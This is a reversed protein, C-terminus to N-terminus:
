VVQVVCSQECDVKHNNVGITVQQAPERLADRYFNSSRITASVLQVQDNRTPVKSFFVCLAIAKNPELVQVTAEKNVVYRRNASSSDTITYEAQLNLSTAAGRGVNKVIAFVYEKEQQEDGQEAVARAYDDNEIPTIDEQLKFSPDKTNITQYLLSETYSFRLARETLAVSDVAAQAMSRNQLLIEYTFLAYITTVAGITAAIYLSVRNPDVSTQHIWLYGGALLVVVVALRALRGAPM